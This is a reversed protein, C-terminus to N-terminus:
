QVGKGGKKEREGRRWSLVGEKWVRSGGKERGKNSIHVECGGEM